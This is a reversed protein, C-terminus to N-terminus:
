TFFFFEVDERWNSLHTIRRFEVWYINSGHLLSDTQYLLQDWTDIHFASSRSLSRRYNLYLDDHFYQITLEVIIPSFILENVERGSAIKADSSELVYKLVWSSLINWKNQLCWVESLWIFNPTFFNLNQLRQSTIGLFRFFIHLFLNSTNDFFRLRFPYFMYRAKDLSDALLDSFIWYISAPQFIKYWVESCDTAFILTPFPMGPVVPM